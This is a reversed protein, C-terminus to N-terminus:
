VVVDGFDLALAAFQWFGGRPRVDNQVAKAQGDIFFNQPLLV